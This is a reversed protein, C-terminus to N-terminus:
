VLMYVMYNYDDWDIGDWHGARGWHLPQLIGSVSCLRLPWFGQSPQGCPGRLWYTSSTRWSGRPAGSGHSCSPLWRHLQPIETSRHPNMAEQQKRNSWSGSRSPICTRSASKKLCRLFLTHCPTARHPPTNWPTTTHQLQSPTNHVVKTPSPAFDRLLNMCCHGIAVWILISTTFYHLLIWLFHKVKSVLAIGGLLVWYWNHGVLAAFRRTWARLEWGKDWSLVWNGWSKLHQPIGRNM